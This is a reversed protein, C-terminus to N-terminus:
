SKAPPHVQAALREVPGPSEATPPALAANLLLRGLRARALYLATLVAAHAVIIKFDVSM